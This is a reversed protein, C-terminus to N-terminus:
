RLIPCKAACNAEDNAINLSPITESLQAELVAAFNAANTQANTHTKVCRKEEAKLMKESELGAISM